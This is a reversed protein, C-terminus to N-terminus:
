GSSIPASVQNTEMEIRFQSQPRPASRTASDPKASEVDVQIQSRMQSEAEDAAMSLGKAVIGTIVLGFCFIPFLYEFM